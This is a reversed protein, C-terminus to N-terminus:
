LLMILPLARRRSSWLRLRLIPPPRFLWIAQAPRRRHRFRAGETRPGEETLSAVTGLRIITAKRCRPSRSHSLVKPIWRWRTNKLLQALAIAEGQIVSTGPPEVGSLSGLSVFGEPGWSGAIVLDLRHGGKLHSGSDQGAIRGWRAARIARALAKEIGFTDEPNRPEFPLPLGRDGPFTHRSSVKPFVWADLQEGQVGLEKLYCVLAGLPGSVRKWSHPGELGSWLVKWTRELWDPSKESRFIKGMARWHLVVTEHPDKLGGEGLDLVIDVSGLKQRFGTAAAMMRVTKREKPSLGQAQHGWTGGALVSGQLIRM